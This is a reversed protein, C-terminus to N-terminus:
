LDKFWIVEPMNSTHEGIIKEMWVMDYWQDFKYGCKHFHGAMEFGMKTHFKVSESYPHVICANVNLIGQRKLYQELEIYLAHGKGGGRYDKDLYITTEVSWNYAKRGKFTNAYAYGVLVGDEEMVIYPYKEIMTTYRGTFEELSPVEWEFSINTEKVYYSYIELLRPMDEVKALRIKWNNNGTSGM